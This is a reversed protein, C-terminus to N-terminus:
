GESWSRGLALGRPKWAKWVSDVLSYTAEWRRRSRILDCSSTIMDFCLPQPESLQKPRFRDISGCALTMRHCPGHILLAATAYAVSSHASQDVILGSDQLRDQAVRRFGPLRGDHDGRGVSPRVFRLREEMVSSAKWPM